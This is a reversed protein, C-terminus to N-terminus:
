RGERKGFAESVAESAVLWVGLGFFCFGDWCGGEGGSLCRGGWGGWVGGWGGGWGVVGGGGWGGLVCDPYNPPFVCATSTL